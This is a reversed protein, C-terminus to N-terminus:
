FSMSGMATVIIILIIGGFTIGLPIILKGAAKEGKQLLLQRKHLWLEQSQNILITGLNGSGKEIEQIILGTFKKIEGSDALIGFTYIAEIDSAGNRMDTCVRQMLEYLEGTRGYAVTNWAERLKMGSSILLSLKSIMNPFELVCAESRNQVSEKMKSIFMNWFAAVFLLSLLLFVILLQGSFFSTFILIICLFFLSFSLFQAWALEVYYDVFIDKYLLKANKVLQEKVKGKLSFFPLNALAYGLPYLNKLPYEKDNLNEILYEYSKAKGACIIYLIVFISALILVFIKILV